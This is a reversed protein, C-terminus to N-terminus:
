PELNCGDSFVELESLQDVETGALFIVEQGARLSASGEQMFQASSFIRVEAGITLNDEVMEELFIEDQCLLDVCSKQSLVDSVYQGPEEGLGNRLDVGISNYICYSMVSGSEPNPLSGCNDESAFCNDLAQDGNPGWFCAHTHPSGFVHGLEHAILFANWNFITDESIDPSLSTAVSYPGFYTEPNYSECISNLNARGGGVNRTTIFQVAHGSYNNQLEQGITNLLSLPTMANQYPDPIDWIKILGISLDIKHIKYIRKVHEFVAIVWIATQNVDSNHDLYSQYDVEFHIALQPRGQSPNSKFFQRKLQKPSIEGQCYYSMDISIEDHDKHTAAQRNSYRSKLIQWDKQDIVGKKGSQSVWEIQGASINTDQGNLVTIVLGLVICLIFARVNVM